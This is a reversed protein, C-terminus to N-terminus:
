RVAAPNWGCLVQHADACCSIHLRVVDTTRNLTNVIGLASANFIKNTLM